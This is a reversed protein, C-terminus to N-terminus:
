RAHAVAGANPHRGAPTPPVTYHAVAGDKGVAWGETSSVMFVAHLDEQWPSPAVVTAWTDGDWHYVAGDEGVAWADVQSVMYVGYLTLGAHPAGLYDKWCIPGFAGCGERSLYRLGPYRGVAWGSDEAIIHVGYMDHTADGSPAWYGQYRVQMGSMGVAWGSTGDPTLSLANLGTATDPTSYDRSWHGDAYHFFKSQRTVLWGEDASIMYVDALSEEPIYDQEWLSWRGNRYRLITGGEGM